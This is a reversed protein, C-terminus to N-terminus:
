EKLFGREMFSLAPSDRCQKTATNSIIHNEKMNNLLKILNFLKVNRNLTNSQITDKISTDDFQLDYKKM